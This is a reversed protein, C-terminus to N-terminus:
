GCACIVNGYYGVLFGIVAFVLALLIGGPISLTTYGIIYGFIGLCIMSCFGGMVSKERPPKTDRTSDPEKM